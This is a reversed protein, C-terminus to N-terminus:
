SKKDNDNAIIIEYCENEIKFYVYERVNSYGKTLDKKHVLHIVDTDIHLINSVSIRLEDVSVQEKSSQYVYNHTKYLKDLDMIMNMEVYKIVFIFVSYINGNM